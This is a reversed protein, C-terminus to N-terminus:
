RPRCARTVFIDADGANPGGLDGRSFGAAYIEGQPGIEVARLTDSAPTGLLEVWQLEGEPDLAVISADEEGVVIGDGFDGLSHGVVYVTGEADVAIDLAVDDVSTGFQSSWQKQGDPDFKVVFNDQGGLPDQLDFSGLTTGTVYVNNDADVAVRAPNDDAEGGVQAAWLLVGDGDFKAVFADSGGWATRGEFSEGTLGAVIIDDNGDVALGYAVQFSRGGLQRNWLETGDTDLKILLMDSSGTNPTGDYSGTTYGALYGRGNSSLGVSQIRDELETGFQLTWEVDAGADYRVAIGDSMGLHTHGELASETRGPVLFSGDADVAIDESMDFLMTGLQRSFLPTGDPQFKSVFLDSDGASANGDLPGEVRGAIYLDGEDDIAIGRAEDSGPTGYQIRWSDCAPACTDVYCDTSECDGDDLCAQGQACPGCGGGCDVDTEDGSLLGDDCSPLACASTCDDTEDDNGDDCQEGPDVVGDGCTGDGTVDAETELGDGSDDTLVSATTGESTEATGSSDDEAPTPGEADTFCGSASMVGALAVTAMGRLRSPLLDELDLSTTTKM